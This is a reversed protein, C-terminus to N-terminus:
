RLVHKRDMQRSRDTQHNDRGVRRTCQNCRVAICGLVLAEEAQAFTMWMRARKNMEPWVSEQREVTAEFFHYEAQLERTGPKYQAIKGLDYDVRCIIGAEEWAERKAADQSNFAIYWGSQYEDDRFMVATPFFMKFHRQITVSSVRNGGHPRAIFVYPTGFVALRAKIAAYSEPTDAIPSASSPKATSASGGHRAQWRDASHAPTADDPVLRPSDQSSHAVSTPRSEHAMKAAAEAAAAAAAKAKAKAQSEAAYRRALERRYAKVYMSKDADLEIHVPVADHTGAGIKKGQLERVAQAACEHARQGPAIAGAVLKGDGEEDEKPEFDHAFQLWFIGLSQGTKPDM